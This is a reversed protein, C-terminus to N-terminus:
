FDLLLRLAVTQRQRRPLSWVARILYPDVPHEDPQAIVEPPNASERKWIRWDTSYANMPTRMAWATPNPHNRVTDWRECARASAAAVADQCREHHRGSLLMARLTRDRTREYFAASESKM